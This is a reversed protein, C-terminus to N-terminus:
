IPVCVWDYTFPINYADAISRNKLHYAYVDFALRHNQRVQESGCEQFVTDKDATKKM